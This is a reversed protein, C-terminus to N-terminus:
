MVKEQFHIRAQLNQVTRKGFKNRGFTLKIAQKFTSIEVLFNCVNYSSFDCSWMMIDGQSVM